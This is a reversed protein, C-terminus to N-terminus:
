WAGGDMLNELCTYQLSKGNGEGSPGDVGRCIVWDQEKKHSLLIGNCADVVYEKDM